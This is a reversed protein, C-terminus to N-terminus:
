GNSPEFIKPDVPKNVEVSTFIIPGMASEISMPVVIGADTKQYNSYTTPVEEEKGDMSVTSITKVVYNTKPDILYTEEGSKKKLVLKYCEVENVTEKGKLEVTYGKKAYDVLDNRIDLEDASAKVQEETMAEPKNQGMAPIYSWGGTPTVIQYNEMGMASFEQRMGKNHETIVTMPLEMGQMNMTGTMKLTNVKRWADAGGIAAIHKQVVEDATQAVASVSTAIAVAATLLMSSFRKM